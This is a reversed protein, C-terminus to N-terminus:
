KGLMARLNNAGAPRAAAGAAVQTQAVVAPNKTTSAASEGLFRAYADPTIFSVRDRRDGEKQANPDGQKVYVFAERDKFWSLDLSVPASNLEAVSKGASILATKFTARNAEKEFDIGVFVWPTAGDFDGGVVRTEFKISNVSGDKEYGEAALIKIKYAGTELKVGGPIGSREKVDRLDVNIEM